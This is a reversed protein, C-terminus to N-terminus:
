KVRQIGSKLTWEFTQDSDNTTRRRRRKMKPDVSHYIYFSFHTRDSRRTSVIHRIIQYMGNDPTGEPVRLWMLKDPSEGGRAFIEYEPMPEGNRALSLELNTMNSAIALVFAPLVLLFLLAALAVVIYKAKSGDRTFEESM